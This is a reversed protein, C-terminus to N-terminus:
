ELKNRVEFIFVEGSISRIFKFYKSDYFLSLLLNDIFMAPKLSFDLSEQHTWASTRTSIVVVYTFNKIRLGNIHYHSEPPIRNTLTHIANYATRSSNARFVNDRLYQLTEKSDISMEEVEMVRDILWITNSLPTMLWMTFYDSIIILNRSMNRRIFMSAEFEAPTFYTQARQESPISENRYSFRAYIPQVLFPTTTVLFLVFIITALKLQSFRRQVIIIFKINTARYLLESLLFIMATTMFPNLYKYVRYTWIIPAFYTILLMSSMISTPIMHKRGALLLYTQSVVFFIIIAEGNGYLYEDFKFFFDVDWQVHLYPISMIGLDLVKIRQLVVWFLAVLAVLRTLIIPSLVIRGHRKEKQFLSVVGYLLLVAVFLLGEHVHILFSTFAILYLVIFVTRLEIDQFLYKGIVLILFFLAPLLLPKIEFVFTGRPLGLTPDELLHIFYLFVSILGVSISGKVVNKTHRKGCAQSSNVLLLAFPFMSYFITSGKFHQAPIDFFLMGTPDKGGSMIFSSILAGLLSLRNDQIKDQLYLFIGCAFLAALLYRAMWVVPLPDLHFFYSPIAVLIVDPLRADLMLHYNEIALTSPQIIARALDHNLGFLPYPIYPISILVPLIGIFSSAVLMCISRVSVNFQKYHSPCVLFAIFLLCVIVAFFMYFLGQRQLLGAVLSVGCIGAMWFIFFKVAKSETVGISINTVKNVLLIFVRGIEYPVTIMVPLALITWLYEPVFDSRFMSVVFGVLLYGLIVLNSLRTRVYVPLSINVM